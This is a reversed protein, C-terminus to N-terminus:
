HALGLRVLSVSLHGREGSHVIVAGSRHHRALIESLPPKWM